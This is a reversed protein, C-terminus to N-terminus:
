QDKFLSLLQLNTLVEPRWIPDIGEPWTRDRGFIRGLQKRRSSFLTTIFRAFGERDCDPVDVRPRISVLSSTVKPQPWFCSPPIDGIREVQAFCTALIGLPGRAKSGPSAILRDAVERQITVLQSQCNPHHLLLEIMLASAVQYPLNAVLTFPRDALREVVAQNLRRGKALCDGRILEIRDEFRAAILDALGEDLECAIVQAKAELLGETLTGTGPGVELVLTGPEINAASIMRRIQNQDHLFNQGLRHRPSLGHAALLERIERISQM